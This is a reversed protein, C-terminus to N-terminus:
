EFDQTELLYSANLVIRIRDELPLHSLLKNNNVELCAKLLAEVDVSGNSLEEVGLYHSLEEPTLLHYEEPSRGKSFNTYGEGLVFVTKEPMIEGYEPCTNIFQIINKKHQFIM